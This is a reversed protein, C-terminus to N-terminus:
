WDKPTRVVLNQGTNSMFFSLVEWKGEPADWEIGKDQVTFKDLSITKKNMDIMKSASYPIAISTILTHRNMEGLKNEPAEIKIKESSPGEVIQSTSLLQMSADAPDVWPGGANWSSSAVMGLDLGLRKSTNLAVSIYELSEDGLFAPGEPIMKAPDTLAGIDWIVAGRMGKDKMEELEYVLKTTDVFGNLWPWLALPRNETSPNVFGEELKGETPLENNCQTLSFVTTILMSIRMGLYVLKHKM